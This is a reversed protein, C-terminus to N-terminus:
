EDTTKELAALRDAEKRAEIVEKIQLLFEETIQTKNITDLSVGIDSKLVMNDALLFVEVFRSVINPQDECVPNSSFSLKNLRELYVIPRLDELTAVLNERLNLYRVNLLYGSNVDAFNSIQNKRLHLKELNKMDKFVTIGKFSNEAAYIEKVNPAQEINDINEIKNLRMDINTLDSMGSLDLKEIENSSINLSTLHPTSTSKFSKIKNKSLNLTRLYYFDNEESEFVNADNIENESLDATVLNKLAKLGSIDKIANKSLNIYKVHLFQDLTAYLATLEKGSCDMMVYAYDARSGVRQVMSLGSQLKETIEKSVEEINIVEEDVKPEAVASDNDIQEKSM